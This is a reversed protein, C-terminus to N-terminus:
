ITNSNYNQVELIGEINFGELRNPQLNCCIFTSLDYLCIKIDDMTYLSLNHVFECNWIDTNFDIVGDKMKCDNFFPNNEIVEYFDREYLNIALICASAAIQSARYNLFKADNM